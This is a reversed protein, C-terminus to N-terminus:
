SRMSLGVFFCIISFCVAGTLVLEDWMEKISWASPAIACCVFFIGQDEIKGYCISEINNNNLATGDDGFM